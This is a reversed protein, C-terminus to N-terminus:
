IRLSQACKPFPRACIGRPNVILAANNDWEYIIDAASEHLLKKVDSLGILFPAISSSLKELVNGSLGFNRFTTGEDQTIHLIELRTRLKIGLM